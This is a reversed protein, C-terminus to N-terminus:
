KKPIEIQSNAYLIQCEKSEIPCKVTFVFLPSPLQEFNPACNM